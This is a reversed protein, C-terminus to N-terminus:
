NIDNRLGSIAKDIVAGQATKDMREAIVREAAAVALDATQNRVEAIAQAEARKIKEEVAKERRTMQENIKDRAEVAMRKADAKAQEIIAAAENEAERQRRQYQALLEQAEERM